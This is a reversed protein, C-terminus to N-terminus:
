KVMNGLTVELWAVFEEFDAVEDELSKKYAIKAARTTIAPKIGYFEKQQTAIEKILEKEAEMRVLSDVIEKIAASYKKREEPNLNPFNEPEKSM